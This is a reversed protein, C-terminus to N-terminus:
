FFKRTALHVEGLRAAHRFWANPGETQLYEFGGSPWWQGPVGEFELLPRSQCEPASLETVFFGMINDENDLVEVIVV